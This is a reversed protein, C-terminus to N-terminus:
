PELLAPTSLTALVQLPSSVIPGSPRPNPWRKKAGYRRKLAATQKADALACACLNFLGVNRMQYAAKQLEEHWSPRRLTRKQPEGINSGFQMVPQPFIAPAVGYVKLGLRWPRHFDMDVPLMRRRPAALKAAGSASILYAGTSVPHRTYRVLMRGSRLDGLNLVAKVPRRNCLKVLDWDAPLKAIIEAVAAAADEEFNVDDELVLAHRYGRQLMTECAILHSAYCGIEGPLLPSQAFQWSLREPVNKGLVGPIREFPV